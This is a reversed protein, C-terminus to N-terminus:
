SIAGFDAMVKTTHRSESSGGEYIRSFAITTQKLNPPYFDICSHFSSGMSSTISLLYNITFLQTFIAPCVQFTGDVYITKIECLQHLMGDTAFFLVRDDTGENRFLFRSGSPTNLWDKSLDVDALCKPLVPLRFNFAFVVQLKM